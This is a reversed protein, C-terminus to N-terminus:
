YYKIPDTTRLSIYSSIILIQRLMISMQQVLVSSYALIQLQLTMDKKVQAMNLTQGYQITPM